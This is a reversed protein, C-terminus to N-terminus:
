FLRDQHPPYGADIAAAIATDVAGAEASTRRAATIAARIAVARGRAGRRDALPGHERGRRTQYDHANDAPTGLLLHAPNQCSAEDCTHRITPGREAWAAGIVGHTAQYAYAHASVVARGAGHAHVRIKGHGTSSIAGLFYWCQDPGRQCTLAAFRARTPEDALWAYWAKASTVHVAVLATAEAAALLAGQGGRGAM